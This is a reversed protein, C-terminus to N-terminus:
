EGAPVFEECECYKCGCPYMDDYTDFHRYYPHGCKCLKDDGYNRDYQLVYMPKYYKLLDKEFNQVVTKCSATVSNDGSCGCCEGCYYGELFNELLQKIM